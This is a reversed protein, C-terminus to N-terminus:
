EEDWDDSDLESLDDDVTPDSLGMPGTANRAAMTLSEVNMAADVVKSTQDAHLERINRKSIQAQAAELRRQIVTEQARALRSQLNAVIQDPDLGDEKMEAKIEFIPTDIIDQIM